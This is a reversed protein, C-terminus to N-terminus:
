RPYEKVRFARGRRGPLVRDRFLCSPRLRRRSLLCHLPPRRRREHDALPRPRRCRGRSGAVPRPAPVPRGPLRELAEAARGGETLFQRLLPGALARDGGGAVLDAAVGLHLEAAPGALFVALDRVLDCDDAEFEVLGAYHPLAAEGVCARAVRRGLLEGVVAHAAEHIATERWCDGEGEADTTDPM